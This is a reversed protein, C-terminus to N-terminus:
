KIEGWSQGGIFELTLYSIDGDATRSLRMGGSEIWEMDPTTQLREFMREASEKLQDVTPTGDCLAWEWDVILMMKRMKQFDFDKMASKFATLEKKDVFPITPNNM